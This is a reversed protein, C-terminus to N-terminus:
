QDFCTVFGLHCFSCGYPFSPVTPLCRQLHHAVACQPWLWGCIGEMYFVCEEDGFRWGLAAFAWLGLARWRCWTQILGRMDADRSKSVQSSCTKWVQPVPATELCPALEAGQSHRGSRDKEPTSQEVRETRKNGYSIAQKSWVKKGLQSRALLFRLGWLGRWM